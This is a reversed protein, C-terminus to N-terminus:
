ARNGSVRMRSEGQGAASLKTKHIRAAKSSQLKAVQLSGSPEAAWAFFWECNARLLKGPQKMPPLQGDLSRQQILGEKGPYAIDVGVLAEKPGTNTGPPHGSAQGLGLKFAKPASEFLHQLMGDAEASGRDGVIDVGVPNTAEKLKFM